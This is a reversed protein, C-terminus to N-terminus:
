FDTAVSFMRWVELEQFNCEPSAEIRQIVFIVLYVLPLIGVKCFQAFVPITKKADGLVVMAHDFNNVYQSYCGLHTAKYFDIKLIHHLAFSSVSRLFIDSIILPSTKQDVLWRKVRSELTEVM